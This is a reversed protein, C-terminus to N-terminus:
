KAFRWFIRSFLVFGIILELRGLVMLLMALGQELGNFSAVVADMGYHRLVSGGNNMFSFTFTWAAEFGQGFAAFVITGTMIIILFAIFYTWIAQRDNDNLKREGIHAARVSSPHALKSLEIELFKTMAVCRFFKIGGSTSLAMGGIAIPLISWLIPWSVDSNPKLILFASTSFLGITNILSHWVDSKQVTIMIITFILITAIFLRFEVDRFLKRDRGRWGVWLPFATAGMLSTLSLIAIHRNDISNMITDSFPAFGSTSIASMTLTIANFTDLGLLLQIIIIAISVALYVNFINTAPWALREYVSETADHQLLPSGSLSIAGVKMPVIVAVSFLLTWFGGVWCILHRWLTLSLPDLEPYLVVSAGTTTFASLSEFLADGFTSIQISATLPIAALFPVFLWVGLGTLLLDHPRTRQHRSNLGSLMLSGAMFSSIIMSILFTRALDYEEEYFAIIAPFLMALSIIVGALGIVFIIPASRM